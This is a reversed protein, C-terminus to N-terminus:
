RYYTQNLKQIRKILKPTFDLPTTRFQWNCGLTSPTNMRDSSASRLFDQMQAICLEGISGWAARLIGDPLESKKEVNLYTKAYRLTAKDADAVWGTLTQNDHTGTYVVCNPTVYNHPLYDNEAGSDFAFQLVKMGPFGTKKLMRRVAPTINGLNEAIISQKGLRKKATTFLLADPGKRWTGHEATEDGYPIAYYAEFGRFHDIRVTDYLAAASSLRKLWWEFGDRAHFDWDYLPNGWLQGTLAFADPPCGAVATPVKKEDLQFLEPHAWVDASDYAAYIPIDGIIQVNHDAAYARLRAWQCFFHYQVFSFFDIEERLEKQAARLAAPERMALAEEWECWPKGDHRFKLAMFLAYDELWFAQEKLFARYPASKRAGRNRFATRLVSFCTQYQKEYNVHFPDDEWDLGDYDAPTLLGEEALLDFDVFYPNGAFVSFSQYPSDGYSTPSLPLVQWCRVGAAALFDVFDFAAKGLKGIGHRSPLSSIHLLIGSKRM